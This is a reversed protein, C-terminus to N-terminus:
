TEEPLDAKESKMRAMLYRMDLRCQNILFPFKHTGLASKKFMQRSINLFDAMEKHGILLFDM